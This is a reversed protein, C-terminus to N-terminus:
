GDQDGALLEVMEPDLTDQPNVGSAEDGHRGHPRDVPGSDPPGAPGRSGAAGREEQPEEQPPPSPDSETM